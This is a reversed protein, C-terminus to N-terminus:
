LVGIWLVIDDGKYFTRAHGAPAIPVWLAQVKKDRAGAVKGLGQAILAEGDFIYLSCRSDIAQFFNLLLVRFM